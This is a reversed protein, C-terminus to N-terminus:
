DCRRRTGCRLRTLWRSMCWREAPDRTSTNRRRITAVRCSAERHRCAAEGAVAAEVAASLRSRMPAVQVPSSRSCRRTAAAPCRAARRPYGAEGEAVAEGAGAVASRRSDSRAVRAPSSTGCRRTAAVRRSVERHHCDAVAAGEVAVRHAPRMCSEAVRFQSPTGFRHTPEVRDDPRMRVPVVPVRCAALARTGDDRHRATLTQEGFATHERCGCPFM